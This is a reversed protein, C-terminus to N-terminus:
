PCLCDRGVGGLPHLYLAGGEGGPPARKRDPTLRGPEARHRPLLLGMLLSLLFGRRIDALSAVDIWVNGSKVQLVAKGGTEQHFM